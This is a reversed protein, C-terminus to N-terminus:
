EAGLRAELGPELLVTFSAQQKSVLVSGPAGGKLPRVDKVLASIIEAKRDNKRWSKLGSLIGAELLTTEPIEVALSQRRIVVHASPGGQVHLWLDHPRALKLLAHNGPASRGRLIIFGDSSVFRQVEKAEKELKSKAQAQKKGSGGKQAASAEPSGLGDLLSQLEAELKKRREALRALGRSGRESQRFMQAMNERLTKLPDLKLREEQGTPSEEALIIVEALKEDAKHRWLTGQLLVASARLAMLGNLRKEEEELKQLTRKLRRRSGSDERIKDKELRLGLFDLVRPEHLERAAELFPFEGEKRELTEEEMDGALKQPLPWASLLHPAGELRYLFLRGGATESEHSLDALLASAEPWDLDM